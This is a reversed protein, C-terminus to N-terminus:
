ARAWCSRSADSNKGRLPLPLCPRMALPIPGGVADSMFYEGVAMNEGTIAPDEAREAAKDLGPVGRVPIVHTRTEPTGPTSEPGGITFKINNVSPM